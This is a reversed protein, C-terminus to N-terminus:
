VCAAFIIPDGKEVIREFAREREREVHIRVLAIQRTKAHQIIRTVRTYLNGQRRFNTSQDVFFDCYDIIVRIDKFKAFCPPMNLKLIERSPFM